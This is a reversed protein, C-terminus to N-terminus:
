RAEQAEHRDLRAPIVSAWVAGAMLLASGSAFAAGMGLHGALLGATVALGAVLIAAIGTGRSLIWFIHISAISM